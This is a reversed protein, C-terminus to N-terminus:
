GPGPPKRPTKPIPRRKKGGGGPSMPGGGPNAPGKSASSKSEDNGRAINQKEFELKEDLRNAIDNMEMDNYAFWAAILQEGTGSIKDLIDSPGPVAEFVYGDRDSEFAWMQPQLDFGVTYIALVVDENFNPDKGTYLEVSYIDNTAKEWQGSAVLAELQERDTMPLMDSVTKQEGRVMGDFFTLLAIRDETNDPAQDESISVREDIGLQVMLDAISTVKPKVPPPPPPPTTNRVVPEASEEEGCGVVAFLVCGAVAGLTLSQAIKSFKRNIM